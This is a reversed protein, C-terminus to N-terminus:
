CSVTAHPRMCNGDRQPLRSAESRGQLEASRHDDTEARLICPCCAGSPDSPQPHFALALCIGDRCADAALLEQRRRRDPGRRFAGQRRCAGAYGSAALCFAGAVDAQQQGVLNRRGYQCRSRRIQRTALPRYTTGDICSPRRPGDSEAEGRRIAEEYLSAATLNYHVSKARGLGITALTIAPNHIGFTEM